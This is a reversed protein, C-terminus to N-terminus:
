VSLELYIHNLTILVLAGIFLRMIGLGTTSASAPAYTVATGATCFLIGALLVQLNALAPPAKHTNM